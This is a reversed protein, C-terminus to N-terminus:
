FASLMDLLNETKKTDSTPLCERLYEKTMEAALSSFANKVAKVQPITKECAEGEEIMRMIGDLQGKLIKVRRVYKGKEMKRWFNEEIYRIGRYPTLLLTKSRM